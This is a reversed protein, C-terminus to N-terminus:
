SNGTGVTSQNYHTYRRRRKSLQFDTCKLSDTNDFNDVSM